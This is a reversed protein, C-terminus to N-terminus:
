KGTGVLMNKGTESVQDGTLFHQPSNTPGTREYEADSHRAHRERSQEKDSHIKWTRAVIDQAL